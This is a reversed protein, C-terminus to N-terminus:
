QSGESLGGPASLILVHLPPTSPLPAPLKEMVIGLQTLAPLCSSFTQSSAPVLAAVLISRIPGCIWTLGSVTNALWRILKIPVPNLGPDTIAFADSRGYSAWSIWNPLLTIVPSRILSLSGTRTSLPPLQDADTSRGNVSAVM